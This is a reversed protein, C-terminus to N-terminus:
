ITKKNSRGKFRQLELQKFDHALMQFYTKNINASRLTM